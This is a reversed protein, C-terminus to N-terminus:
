LAFNMQPNFNYIHILFRASIYAYYQLLIDKLIIFYLLFCMRFLMTIKESKTNDVICILTDDIDFDHKISFFNSFAFRHRPFNALLLPLPFCRPSRLLGQNVQRIETTGFSRRCRSPVLATILPSGSSRWVPLFTPKASSGSAAAENFSEHSSM